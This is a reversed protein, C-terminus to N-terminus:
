QEAERRGHRGTMRSEADVQRSRPQRIVVEDPRWRAKPAPKVGSGEMSAGRTSPAGVTVLRVIARFVVVSESIRQPPCIGMLLSGPSNLVHRFSRAWSAPRGQRM